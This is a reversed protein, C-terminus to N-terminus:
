TREPVFNLITNNISKGLEEGLAGGLAEDLLQRRRRRVAAAARSEAFRAAERAEREASTRRKRAAMQDLLGEAFGAVDSTLLANMAHCRAGWCRLAGYALEARLLGVRAKVAALDDGDRRLLMEIHEPMIGIFGALKPHSEVAATHAPSWGPPVGISARGQPDYYAPISNGGEEGSGRHLAAATQIVVGRRRAM